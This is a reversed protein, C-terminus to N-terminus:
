CPRLLRLLEAALAAQTSDAIRFRVGGPLEVELGAPATAPMRAEVFRVPRARRTSPRQATGALRQRHLWGAFTAYKVGVHAAFAVGTMGSREFAALIQKRREAPMLVRGRVDTSLARADDRSTM